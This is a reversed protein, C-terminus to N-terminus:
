ARCLDYEGFGVFALGEEDRERGFLKSHMVLCLTWRMGNLVNPTSGPQDKSSDKQPSFSM